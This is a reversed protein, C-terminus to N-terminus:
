PLPCGPRHSALSPPPEPAVRLPGSSPPLHPGPGPLTTVPRALSRACPWVCLPGQGPQAPRAGPSGPGGLGSRPGPSGTAERWRASPKWTVVVVDVADDVLPVGPCAQELGVLGDARRAGVVPLEEGHPGVGEQRHGVGEVARGGLHVGVQVHPQHAGELEELGEQYPRSWGGGAGAESAAGFWCGAIRTQRGWCGRVRQGPRRGQGEARPAAGGRGSLARPSLDNGTVQSGTLIRLLPRQQWCPAGEERPHQQSVGKSM